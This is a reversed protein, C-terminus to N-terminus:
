GRCSQEISFCIEMAKWLRENNVREGRGCMDVFNKIPLTKDVPQTNKIIKHGKAGYLTVRHEHVGEFGCNVTLRGLGGDAYKMIAQVTDCELTTNYAVGMASGDQLEGPRLWLMLDAMHLGAGLIVSYNSSRWGEQLKHLRGYNYEAEILYIPGLDFEERFPPHFPLPLNCAIQGQYGMIWQLEDQRVVPPKEVMIAKDHSMAEDIQHFHDADHSAISVIDVDRVFDKYNATGEVKYRECMKALREPDTDAVCVELGMEQYARIHFEGVGLGIVLAKM